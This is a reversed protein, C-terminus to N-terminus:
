KDKLNYKYKIFEKTIVSAWPMNKETLYKGYRESQEDKFRQLDNSNFKLLLFDIYVTFINEKDVINKITEDYYMKQWDLENSNVIFDMFMQEGNEHKKLANQIINLDEDIYKILKSRLFSIDNNHWEMYFAIDEIKYLAVSMNIDDTPFLINPLPFYFPAQTLNIGRKIPNKSNKQQKENNDVEENNNDVKIDENIALDGIQSHYYNVAIYKCGSDRINELLAWINAIPLYEMMNTCVVLDSTPLPENSADLIMFIKNKEYRFYQRNDQIIEDVVDVGIYNLNKDQLAVCNEIDYGDGCQIELISKVKDDFYNKLLTIHKKTEETM